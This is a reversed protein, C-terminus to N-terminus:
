PLPKRCVLYYGSALINTEKHEKRIDGYEEKVLFNAHDFVWSLFFLKTKVLWNFHLRTQFSLRQLLVAITSFSKAEPLLEAIHWDKFLHQLGYRTFRWYDHPTDHLPYVFRTTLILTGGKKLVRRMESIARPPDILHELVETCLIVNFEEDAFPLMHADGVIDPNRKPDIDITLRNPFYRGYSSGGAGIDLIREDTAHLALFADLNRRTIKRMM